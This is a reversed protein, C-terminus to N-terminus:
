LRIARREARASRIAALRAILWDVVTPPEPHSGNWDLAGTSPAVRHHENTGM